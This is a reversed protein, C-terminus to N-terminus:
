SLNEGDEPTEHSVALLFQIVALFKEVVTAPSKRNKLGFVNFIREFGTVPLATQRNPLVDSRETSGGPNSGPVFAEFANIIDM